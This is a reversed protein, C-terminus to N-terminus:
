PLPSVLFSAVSTPCLMKQIPYENYLRRLVGFSDLFERPNMTLRGGQQNHVLERVLLLAVCLSAAGKETPDIIQQSSVAGFGPFSIYAHIKPSLQAFVWVHM